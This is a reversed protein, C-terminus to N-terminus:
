RTQQLMIESVWVEYARQSIMDEIGENEQQQLKWEQESVRWPMERKEKSDFWSLLNSRIREIEKADWSPPLDEIDPIGEKTDSVTKQKKAPPKKPSKRSRKM